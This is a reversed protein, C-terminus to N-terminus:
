YILDIFIEFNRKFLQCSLIEIKGLSKNISPSVTRFSVDSNAFCPQTRLNEAFLVAKIPMILTMNGTHFAYIFLFISSSPSLPLYILLLNQVVSGLFTLVISFSIWIQLFHGEFFCLLVFIIVIHVVFFYSLVQNFM